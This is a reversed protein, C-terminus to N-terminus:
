RSNLSWDYSLYTISKFTGASDKPLYTRIGGSAAFDEEFWDFIKSIYMAKGDLRTGKGPNSIFSQHQEHLANIITKGDFAIKRLDPCSVSACVIAFHIKPETMPRLILHEIEHLTRMKGAVIGADKKWVPKLWNGIDRISNAPNHKLIMQIAMINYANIWFALKENKGQLQELQFYEVMKLVKPWHKDRKWASYDVLHLNVENRTEPYVHAALLANYDSWDPEVASANQWPYFALILLWILKKM